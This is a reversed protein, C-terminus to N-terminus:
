EVDRPLIFVVVCGLTAIIGFEFLPNYLEPLGVILLISSMVIFGIFIEFALKKGLSYVWLSFLISIILTSLTVIGLLGNSDLQLLVAASAYTAASLKLWNKGVFSNQPKVLLMTVSFLSNALILVTVLNALNQM